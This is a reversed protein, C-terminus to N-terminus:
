PGSLYQKKKSAEEKIKNFLLEHHKTFTQIVVIFILQQM